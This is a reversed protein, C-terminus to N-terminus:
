RTARSPTRHTYRPRKVSRYGQQSAKDANVRYPGYGVAAAILIPAPLRAVAVLLPASLATPIHGRDVERGILAGALSILSPRLM